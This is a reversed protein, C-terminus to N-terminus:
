LRKYNICKNFLFPDATKVEMKEPMVADSENITVTTDPQLNDIISVKGLPWTVTLKLNAAKKFGFNPRNDMSSQFGRVPQQDLYYSTSDAQLELKSGIGETNMGEGKLIVKLYHNDQQDLNNQYVFVPMNVNNVVLDMDGDNDLDGYASGNSFSETNLGNEEREFKLDGKNVYAHNKIKNSPIIDISSIYSM